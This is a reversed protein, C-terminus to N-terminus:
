GTKRLKNNRADNDPRQRMKIWDVRELREDAVDAWADMNAISRAHRRLRREVAGLRWFLVALAIALLVAVWSPVPEILLFRIVETMGIPVM